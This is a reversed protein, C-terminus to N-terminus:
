EKQQVVNKFLEDNIKFDYSINHIKHISKTHESIEPWYRDM